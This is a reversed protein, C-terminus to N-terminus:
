KNKVVFKFMGSGVVAGGMDGRANLQAWMKVGFKGSSAVISM